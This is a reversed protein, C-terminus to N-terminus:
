AHLVRVIQQNRAVKQCVDLRPFPRPKFIRNQKVAPAASQLHIECAFIGPELACHTGDKVVAASFRRAQRALESVRNNADGGCRTTDSATVAM